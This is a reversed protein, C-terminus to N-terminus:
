DKKTKTLIKPFVKSLEKVSDDEFRCMYLLPVAPKLKKAVRYMEIAGDTTNGRVPLVNENGLLRKALRSRDKSVGWSTYFKFISQMYKGVHSSVSPYGTMLRELVHFDDLEKTSYASEIALLKGVELGTFAAVVLSNFARFNMDEISALRGNEKIATLYQPLQICGKFYKANAKSVKYFPANFYIAFQSMIDATTTEGVCYVIRSPEHEEMISVIKEYKGRYLNYAKASKDAGIKSTAPKRFHEVIAEEEDLLSSSKYVSKDNLLEKYIAVNEQAMNTLEKKDIWIFGNRFVKRSEILYRKIKADVIIDETDEVFVPYNQRGYVADTKYRNSNCVRGNEICVAKCKSRFFVGIQDISINAGNRTLTTKAARTTDLLGKLATYIKMENTIEQKIGEKKRMTGIYWDLLSVDSIEKDATVYEKALVKAAEMAESLSKITKPTYKVSERSQSVDLSEPQIKLGVAAYVTSLGLEEMDVMGYNINNLLIFPKTYKETSVVLLEDEYLKTAKICEKVPTDSWEYFHKCYDIEVDLYGLQDTIAEDIKYYMSGKPVVLGIEVGNTENCLEYYAKFDYEEEKGDANIRLSKWTIFKNFEGDDNMAPVVSNYGKLTIDLIIRKGEYVITSRFSNAVALPSKGGIGFCGLAKSLRKSSWGLDLYGAIRDGWIGVGGQDKIKIYDEKSTYYRLYNIIVKPEANIHDFNYYGRNFKSAKALKDDSDSYYKSVPEGDVIIKRAIEAEKISDVCNSVTERIFSKIPYKYIDIQMNQMLLDEADKDMKKLGGQTGEEVKVSIEAM